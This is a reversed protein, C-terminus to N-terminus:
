QSDCGSLSKSITLTTTDYLTLTDIFVANDSITADSLLDSASFSDIVDIDLLTLTKDTKIILTKESDISLESNTITQHEVFNITPDLIVVGEQESAHLKIQKMATELMPITALTTIDFDKVGTGGKEVPLITFAPEFMEPNINIDRAYADLKEIASTEHSHINDIVSKEHDQLQEIAIETYADIDPKTAALVRQKLEDTSIPEYTFTLDAIEKRSLIVYFSFEFGQAKYFGNTEPSYPCYAYLTGDSLTLGIEKINVEVEIPVHTTLKIAGDSLREVVLVETTYALHTLATAQYPNPNPQGDGLIIKDFIPMKGTSTIATNEADIGSQTITLIM